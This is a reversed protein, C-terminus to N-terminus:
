GINASNRFKRWAWGIFKYMVFFMLANCFVGFIQGIFGAGSGFISSIAAGILAGTLVGKAFNGFGGFGSFFGGSSRANQNVTGTSKNSPAPAAPKASPAPAKKLNVKAAVEIGRSAEGTSVATTTLVMLGIMIAAFIKKMATEEM